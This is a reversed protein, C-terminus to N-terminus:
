KLNETKLKNQHVCRNIRGCKLLSIIGSSFVRRQTAWENPDVLSDYRELLELMLSLSM